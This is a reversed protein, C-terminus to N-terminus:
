VGALVNVVGDAVTAGGGPDTRQVDWVYGGPDLVLTEAAGILVQFKCATADTVTATSTILDAGGHTEALTFVLTWGAIGGDIKPYLTFNMEVDDGQFFSIYSFASVIPGARLTLTTHDSAPLYFIASPVWEGVGSGASFYRSSFYRSTFYSTAFM